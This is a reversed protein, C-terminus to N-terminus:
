YSSGKPASAGLRGRTFLASIVGLTPHRGGVAPFEM